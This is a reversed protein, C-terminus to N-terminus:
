GLSCPHMCRQTVLSTKRNDIMQSETVACNTLQRPDRPHVAVKERMMEIQQLRRAQNFATDGLAVMTASVHDQIPVTEGGAQCCGRTKTFNEEDAGAIRRSGLEGGGQPFPHGATMGGTGAMTRSGAHIGLRDLNCVFVANVQRRHRGPTVLVNVILGIEDDTDAVPGEFGSHWPRVEMRVPRDGVRDGLSGNRGKLRRETLDGHSHLMEDAGCM